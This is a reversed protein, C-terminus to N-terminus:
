WRRSKGKLQPRAPAFPHCASAPWMLQQGPTRTEHRIAAAGEFVVHVKKYCIMRTGKQPLRLQATLDQLCVLFYSCNGLVSLVILCLHLNNLLEKELKTPM